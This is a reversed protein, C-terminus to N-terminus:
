RLANRIGSYIGILAFLGTIVALGIGLSNLVDGKEVAAPNSPLSTPTPAPATELAPSDQETPLPTGTPSPTKTEIPTYNRVRVGNIFKSLTEGNAYTAKLRLDYVGDTITTTDWEIQFEVSEEPDINALIFWTGTKDNPYAFSLEVSELGGGKAEGTVAVLGQLADGDKPATLEIWASPTPTAAKALPMKGFAIGILFFTILLSLIRRM